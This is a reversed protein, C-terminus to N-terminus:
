RDGCRVAALRMGRFRHPMPDLLEDIGFDCAVHEGVIRDDVPQALGADVNRAPRNCFVPLRHPYGRRNLAPALLLCECRLGRAKGRQRPSRDIRATLTPGPSRLCTMGNRTEPFFRSMPPASRSRMLVRM